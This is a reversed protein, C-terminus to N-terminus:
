LNKGHGQLGDPYPAEREIWNKNQKRERSKGDDRQDREGDGEDHM